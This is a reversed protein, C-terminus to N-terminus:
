KKTKSLADRDVMQPPEELWENKIMINTGDECFLAVEGMLRSYHSVIDRRINVSISYGYFGIGQVIMGNTHYMILKDSFPSIDSSTTVMTDSGMPVPVDSEKLIDSFITIHKKAIDIGRLLFSRVEKSSAVQSFGTLLSAGLANRKINAYLSSIEPAVLPRREGFWGTLFTQKKVFDVDNPTPIIPPRVYTGKSLSVDLAKKHLKNFNSHLNSYYTYVDERTCSDLSMSAYNMGLACENLVYELMFGDTFLKPADPNVDERTFGKPVPHHDSQFLNTLKDLAEYSMNLIEQIIPKIEDDHVKEIFYSSVAKTLSANMYSTWLYTLESATLPIHQKM